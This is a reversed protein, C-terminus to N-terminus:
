IDTVANKDHVKATNHLYSRTFLEILMGQMGIGLRKKSSDGYGIRFDLVSTLSDRNVPFDRTQRPSRGTTREMVSTRLSGVPTPFLNRCQLIQAIPVLNGTEQILRSSLIM